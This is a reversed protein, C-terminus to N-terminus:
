QYPWTDESVLEHEHDHEHLKGQNVDSPFVPAPFRHNETM